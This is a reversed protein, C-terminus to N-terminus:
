QEHMGDLCHQRVFKQTCQQLASTAALNFKSCSALLSAGFLKLISHFLAPTCSHIFSHTYTHTHIYPHIFLVSTAHMILSPVQELYGTIWESREETDKTLPTGNETIYMPVGLKSAYSIARYLSPPYMPYGMETVGRPGRTSPQLTLGVIGRCCGVAQRSDPLHYAHFCTVLAHSSPRLCAKLGCVLKFCVM